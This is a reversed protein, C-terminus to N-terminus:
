NAHRQRKLYIIAGIGLAIFGLAIYQAQSLDFGLFEYRPNVRFFEVFFREIGTLALFIFFAMGPIKIRRRFSWLIAFFILTVAIEWIPTPFVMPSLEYCYDWTCGAIPVGENLVNHAYSSAWMGDPLIFWDPKAMENVIGWDGDGSLQCGMRGVAYGMFIAPAAADMIHFSAIGRKNVYRTVIFFALIYGGYVTLGSGSFIEGIPDRLFSDFNELISFLKAGAVGSIAAVMAIDVVRDHPYVKRKEIVLKVDKTKFYQYAGFAGLLVAGVVGGIVSGMSSFIISAPDSRFADFNQYAFLGKFGLFAGWLVNILIDKWTGPRSTTVEEVKHSLIGEEEKRKLELKLVYGSALFAFALFLGFTKVISFVNDPGFGTIAHVIYSLDPYM